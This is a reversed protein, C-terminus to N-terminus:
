NVTQTDIVGRSPETKRGAARRRLRAIDCLLREFPGLALWRRFWGYIAQKCVVFETRDPPAPQGKWPATPRQLSVPRRGLGTASNRSPKARESYTM